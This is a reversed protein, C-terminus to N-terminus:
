FNIMNTVAILNMVLFVQFFKEENYVNQKVLLQWHFDGIIINWWFM